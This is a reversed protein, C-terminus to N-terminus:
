FRKIIYDRSIMVVRLSNRLDRTKPAPLRVRPGWRFRFFSFTKRAEERPDLTPCGFGKKDLSPFGM